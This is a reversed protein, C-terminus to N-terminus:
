CGCRGSRGARRGPRQPIGSSCIIECPPRWGMVPHRRASSWGQTTQGHLIVRTSTSAGPPSVDSGGLARKTFTESAAGSRLRSPTYMLMEPHRVPPHCIERVHGRHEAYTHSPVRLRQEPAGRWLRMGRSTPRDAGSIVAGDSPGEVWTALDRDTDAVTAIGALPQGLVPVVRSTMGSRALGTAPQATEPRRLTLGSAVRSRRDQV